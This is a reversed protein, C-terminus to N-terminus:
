RKDCHRKLAQDLCDDAFISKRDNRECLVYHDVMAEFDTNDKCEYDNSENFFSCGSLILFILIIKM